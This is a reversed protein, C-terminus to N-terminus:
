AYRKSIEQWFATWFENVAAKVSPSNAKLFAIEESVQEIPEFDAMNAAYEAATTEKKM